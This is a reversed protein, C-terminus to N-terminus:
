GGPQSNENQLAQLGLDMLFSLSKIGETINWISSDDPFEGESHQGDSHQGIARLGDNLYEIFDIPGFSNDITQGLTASDRKQDLLQIRKESVNRSLLYDLYGIVIQQNDPQNRIKELYLCFDPLFGETSITQSEQEAM